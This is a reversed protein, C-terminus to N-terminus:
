DDVHGDGGPEYYDQKRKLVRRLQTAILVLSVCAVFGFLPYFGPFRDWGHVAHRSVVFDLILLLACVAYLIRLLRLVNRPRDFVHQKQGPENM